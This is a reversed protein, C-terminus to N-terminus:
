EAEGDGDTMERLLRLLERPDVPKLLHVDFGAEGSRRRDEPEGHGSIALLPTACCVAALLVGAAVSACCRGM